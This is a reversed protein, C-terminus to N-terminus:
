PDVQKLAKGPEGTADLEVTVKVANPVHRVKVAKGIM